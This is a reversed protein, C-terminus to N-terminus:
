NRKLSRQRRTLVPSLKGSHVYKQQELAALALHVEESNRLQASEQEREKELQSQLAESRRM